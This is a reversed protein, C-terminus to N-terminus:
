PKKRSSFFRLLAKELEQATREDITGLYEVLRSNDVTRTQEVAVEGSVGAFRTRVRYPLNRVRSTMPVITVIMLKGLADPSVIICPRTKKIERGVSPDLRVLYVDFKQPTKM